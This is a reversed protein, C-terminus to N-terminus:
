RCSLAPELGATRVMEIQKHLNFHNSKQLGRATADAGKREASRGPEKTPTGRLEARPRPPTTTTRGSASGRNAPQAREPIEGLFRQYIDIVEKSEIM